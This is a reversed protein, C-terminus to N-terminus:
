KSIGDKTAVLSQSSRQVAPGSFSSSDVLVGDVFVSQQSFASGTWVGSIEGASVSRPLSLVAIFTAAAILSMKGTKMMSTEGKAPLLASVQQAFAVSRGFSKPSAM